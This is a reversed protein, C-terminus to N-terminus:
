QKVRANGLYTESILVWATSNSEFTILGTERNGKQAEPHCLHCLGNISTFGM